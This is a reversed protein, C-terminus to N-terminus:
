SAVRAMQGNPSLRRGAKVTNVRAAMEARAKWRADRAASPNFQIGAHEDVFRSLQDEMIIYWSMMQGQRNVPRRAELLGDRILRTVKRSSIGLMHSVEDKSYSGAPRSPRDLKLLRQRVGNSTRKTGFQDNLKAAVEHVLFGQDILLLLIRDQEKTWRSFRSDRWNTPKSRKGTKRSQCCACIDPFDLCRYRLALAARRGDM